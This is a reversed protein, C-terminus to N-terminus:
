SQSLNSSEAAAKRAAREASMREVDAEMLPGQTTGPVGGDRIWSIRLSDKVGFRALHIGVVQELQDCESDACTLEMVLADPRATLVIEGRDAFSLNGHDEEWSGSIKRGMHSVLQKGYRAARDTGVTAISIM